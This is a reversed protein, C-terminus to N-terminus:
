WMETERITGVPKLNWSLFALVRWRQTDSQRGHVALPSKRVVCVGASGMERMTLMVVWLRM